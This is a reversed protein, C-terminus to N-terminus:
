YSKTSPPQPSTARTRAGSATKRNRISNMLGHLMKGVLEIQRGLESVATTDLFGLRQAVYVHTDLESLSGRAIYLFQLYETTHHRSCGEAINAPISTAARRMQSTLGFAESIPFGKTFRYIAETLEVGAEWVRLDRHSKVSSETM